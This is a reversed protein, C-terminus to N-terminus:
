LATHIYTHTHTITTLLTLNFFFCCCLHKVKNPKHVASAQKALLKNAAIGASMTYGREHLVAERLALVFSAARILMKGFGTSSDITSGDVTRSLDPNSAAALMIESDMSDDNAPVTLDIYAEDISAREMIAGPPLAAELVSMIAVSENRYRELTVKKQDGTGIYEVEALVINPCAQQCRAISFSRKIGCVRAAYNVAIANAWQIVVLPRSNEIGLRKHEV